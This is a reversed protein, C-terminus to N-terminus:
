RGQARQRALWLLHAHAEDRDGTGGPQQHPLRGPLARDLEGVLAAGDHHRDAARQRHEALDAVLGVHMGRDRQEGPSRQHAELQDGRAAEGGVGLTPVPLDRPEVGGVLAADGLQRAGPGPVAEVFRGGLAHDAAQEVGHDVGHGAGGRPARAVAARRGDSGRRRRRAAGVREAVLQLLPDGADTRASAVVPRVQHGDREADLGVLLLQDGAVYAQHQLDVGDVVGGVEGVGGLQPGLGTRLGGVAEALPRAGVGGDRQAGRGVGPRDEVPQEVQPDGVLDGEVGVLDEREEVTAGRRQGLRAMRDHPRLVEVALDGLPDLQASTGRGAGALLGQLVAEEPRLRQEAELPLERQVALLQAVLLHVLQGAGGARDDLQAVVPDRDVGRHDLAGALPQDAGDGRDLRQRRREGTDDVDLVRGVLRDDPRAEEVTRSRTRSAADPSSTSTGAPRQLGLEAVVLAAPQGPQGLEGASPRPAQRASSMPSPLVIVSIASCRCRRSCPPPPGVRTTQGADSSPLQSASIRRKAGPTATRRWWPLARSRSPTM